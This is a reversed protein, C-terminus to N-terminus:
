SRNRELIASRNLVAASAGGVIVAPHILGDQGLGSWDLALARAIIAEEWMQIQTKQLAMAKVFEQEFGVLEDLSLVPENIMSEVWARGEDIMRQHALAYELTLMDVQHDLTVILDAPDVPSRVEDPEWTVDVFPSHPSIYSVVGCGWRPIIQEHPTGQTLLLEEEYLLRVIPRAAIVSAGVKLPLM